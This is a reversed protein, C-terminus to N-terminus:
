MVGGKTAHPLFAVATCVGPVKAAATVCARAACLACWGGAAVDVAFLYWNRVNAM